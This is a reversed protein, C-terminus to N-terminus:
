VSAHERMCTQEIRNILKWLLTNNKGMKSINTEMFSQNGITKSFDYGILKYYTEGM